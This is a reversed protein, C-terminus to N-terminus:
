REPKPAVLREPNPRTFDIRLQDNAYVRISRKDDIVKGKANSYRVEITHPIGKGPALAPLVFQHIPGTQNDKRGDLRVEAGKPVAIQVHAANDIPGFGATQGPTAAGQSSDSSPNMSPPPYASYAWSGLAPPIPPGYGNPGCCGTGHTPTAYVLGCGAPFGASGDSPGYRFSPGYSGYSWYRRFFGYYGAGGYGREGFPHAGGYCGGPCVVVGSGSARGGIQGQAKPPACLGLFLMATALTTTPFYSAFPRLEVMRPLRQYM